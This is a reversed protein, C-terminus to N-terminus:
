GDVPADPNRTLTLEMPAEVGLMTIIVHRGNEGAEHDISVGEVPDIEAGSGSSPGEISISLPDGFYLDAASEDPVVVARLVDGENLDFVLVQETFPELTRTLPTADELEIAEETIMWGVGQDGRVAVPAAVDFEDFVVDQRAQRDPDKTLGAWLFGPILILALGALIRIRRRRQQEVIVQEVPRDTIRGSGSATAAASGDDM